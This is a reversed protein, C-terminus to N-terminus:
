ADPRLALPLPASLLRLLPHFLAPGRLPIPHPSPHSEHVRLLFVAAAAMGVLSMAGFMWGIGLRQAVLGCAIPGLATALGQVGFLRAQAAGRGGDTTLDNIFVVSVAGMIGFNLGHLSQVLLVGLPTHAPIYALLRLPMLLFAVALAPRRGYRDTLRGVQKMVLVECVVGTAFVGTIWLPTAGLARLYLSLYSSAGYLAFQYLFLALLFWQVNPALPARSATQNETPKIELASGKPDPVLTSVGALLAFLWFGGTFVPTLAARGLGSLAHAGAHPILTRTVLLGTTLAVVIYGVSGWVRYGAYAAGGGNARGVIRGVLVGGVGNLYQTGNVGLCTLLLFAWLDGPAVRTYGVYAGGAALAAVVMLPRRADLLDSVRGILPQVLLTLGTGVGVVLGIQGTTLGSAALYLPVFPQLFGFAATTLFMCAILAFRRWPAPQGGAGLEPPSLPPRNDV